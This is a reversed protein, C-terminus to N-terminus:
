VRPSPHTVANAALASGSNFGFWGFWLLGTGLVVLPVNAPKQIAMVPKIMYAGVLAAWGSSMHVM